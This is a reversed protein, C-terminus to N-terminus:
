EVSALHYNAKEEREWLFISCLLISKCLLHPPLLIRQPSLEFGIPVWCCDRISEHSLIESSLHADSQPVCERRFRPFKGMGRFNRPFAVSACATSRLEPNNCPSFVSNSEPFPLPPGLGGPNPGEAFMFM